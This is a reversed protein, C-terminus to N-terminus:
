NAVGYRRAWESEIRTMWSAHPENLTPGLEAPALTAVGLDLASFKERDAAPLKEMALVTPDGWIGPDQKRLQAEPSLLFNALVLAGERATANYPIAVFHANGITGNRLVFSRVTAPLEGTAIANSAEAPSFAFAIDVENDAFLQRLAEKNRPFTRGARWLNPQLADLSEFFPKTVEGFTAENVPQLLVAPDAVTEALAQKLFTSGM